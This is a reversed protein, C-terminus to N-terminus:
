INREYQSLKHKNDNDNNDDEDDTDGDDDTDDDDDDDNYQEAPVTHSHSESHYQNDDESEGNMGDCLLDTNKNMEQAYEEPVTSEDDNTKYEKVIDKKNPNIASQQIQKNQMNNTPTIDNTTNANIDNKVYEGGIYADTDDDEMNLENWCCREENEIKNPQKQMSRTNNNEYFSLCKNHKYIQEMLKRQKSTKRVLHINKCLNEFRDMGEETWGKYKVNTNPSTYMGSRAKVKENLDVERAWINWNREITFIAFAEDTISICDSITCDRTELFKYKWVERKVLKSGFTDWFLDFCKQTDNKENEPMDSNQTSILVTPFTQLKFLEGISSDTKSKNYM